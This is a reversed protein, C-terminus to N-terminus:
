QVLQQKFKYKTIIENIEKVINRRKLKEFNSLALSSSFSGIPVRGSCCRCCRGESHPNLQKSSFLLKASM